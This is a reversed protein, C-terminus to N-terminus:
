HFLSYVAVLAWMGCERVTSSCSENGLSNNVSCTWTGLLSEFIMREASARTTGPPFMLLSNNALTLRTYLVLSGAGRWRTVTLARSRVLGEMLLPNTMVFEPNIVFNNDGVTASYYTVGDKKWTREPQPFAGPTNAPLNRQVINCHIHTWGRGFELCFNTGIKYGAYYTNTGTPGAYLNFALFFISYSYWSM